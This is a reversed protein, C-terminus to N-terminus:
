LEKVLSVYFRNHMNKSLSGYIKYGNNLYKEVEAEFGRTSEFEEIVKYKYQFQKQKVITTGCGGDIMDYNPQRIKM